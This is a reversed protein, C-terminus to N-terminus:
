TQAPPLLRMDIFRCVLHADGADHCPVTHSSSSHCQQTLSCNDAHWRLQLQGMNAVAGARLHMSSSCRRPQCRPIASEGPTSSGLFGESSYTVLHNPDLSKLSEATEDLWGQILSSVM